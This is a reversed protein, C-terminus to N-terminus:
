FECRVEYDRLATGKEERKKLTLLKVRSFLGSHQLGDLLETVSPTDLSVGSFAVGSAQVGQGNAGDLAAPMQFNTLEMKTVRLRGESVHAARSIAGLLSLANRQNELEKAVTEQQQLEDLQKRMNVVQRLMTRTPAHERTLAELQQSLAKDERVEVRHCVWGAVLVIGIVSVWQVARRRVIQQRRYSAPLLDITTKM